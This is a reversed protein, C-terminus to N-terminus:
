RRPSQMIAILLVGPTPGCFESMAAATAAGYAGSLNNLISSGGSVIASGANGLGSEVMGFFQGTANGAASLLNPM